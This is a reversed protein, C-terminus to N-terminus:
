ARPPAESWLRDNDSVPNFFCILNGDPDRVIFDWAGWPKLKLTQDFIVGRGKYELFLAKVGEVVLSASLLSEEKKNQEVMFPNCVLRLNFGVGNRQVLGYFPPSGYLYAVKFGLKESYFTAARKVDAVFVQPYAVCFRPSQSKERAAGTGGLKKAAGKTLAAWSEFGADKAVVAQADALTFPAALIERDTLKAFKPLRDRLKEAVPYCRERHQKVLTKARKKLNDLNPM